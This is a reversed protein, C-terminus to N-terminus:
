QAEVREGERTRTTAARAGGVGFNIGTISTRTGQRQHRKRRRRGARVRCPRVRRRVRLRRRVNRMTSCRRLGHHSTSTLYRSGLTTSPQGAEGAVSMEEVRKADVISDVIYYEENLDNDIPWHRLKSVHFESHIRRGHLDSLVYRDREDPGQLVRYPGVYPVDMKSVRGPQLLLVRDGPNFRLNTQYKGDHELKRRGEVDKVHSQM